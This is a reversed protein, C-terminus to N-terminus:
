MIEFVMRILIDNLDVGNPGVTQKVFYLDVAKPRLMNNDYRYGIKLGIKFVDDSYCIM